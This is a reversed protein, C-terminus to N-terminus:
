KCPVPHLFSLFYKEFVEVSNRPFLKIVEDQLNEPLKIIIESFVSAHGLELGAKGLLVYLEFLLKPPTNIIIIGRSDHIHWWDIYGYVEKRNAYLKANKSFFVIRLSYFEDELKEQYYVCVQFIHAIIHVPIYSEM